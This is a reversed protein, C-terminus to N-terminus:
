IARAKSGPSANADFIDPSHLPSSSVLPSLVLLPEREISWDIWHREFAPRTGRRPYNMKATPDTYPSAVPEVVRISEKNGVADPTHAACRQM